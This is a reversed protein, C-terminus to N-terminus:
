SQFMELIQLIDSIVETEREQAWFHWAPKQSVHM